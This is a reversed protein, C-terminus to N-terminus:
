LLGRRAALGISVAAMPFTSRMINDLGKQLRITDINSLTEVNVQLIKGLSNAFGPLGSSGGSLVVSALPPVSPNESFWEKISEDIQKAFFIIFDDMEEKVEPPLGGSSVSVKLNEAESRSLGLRNQISKTLVEGGLFIDKVFLTGAGNFINISTISDGVNLLAVVQPSRHGYSLRYLNQLALVDIDVVQPDFGAERVVGIYSQVMSKKAAVLLFDVSSDEVGLVEYDLEAEDVRFPLWQAAEWSIVNPLERLKVGSLQVRKVFTGPGSLTIIANQGRIKGAGRAEKLAEVVAHRDIIERLVISNDPIPKVGFASLYIEKGRPIVEALKVSHSGIDIGVLRSPFM